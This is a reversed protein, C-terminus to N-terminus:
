SGPKIAKLETRGEQVEASVRELREQLTHLLDDAYEHAGQKIDWAMKEAKHIVEEAMERAKSTIETEDVKKDVERQASEMIRQAEKRSEGLVKEREQVVWKAQRMEEPLATRIRDLSELIREEDVLIRRTMPIRPSGEVLEELENLLEFMEM